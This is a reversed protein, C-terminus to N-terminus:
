RARRNPLFKGRRCPLCPPAGRGRSLDFVILLFIRFTLGELRFLQNRSKSDPGGCHIVYIDMLGDNNSDFVGVGSGAQEPMFYEGRAGSDHIVNIGAQVAVEEFLAPPSEARAAPEAHRSCSIGLCAICAPVISLAALARPPKESTPRPPM